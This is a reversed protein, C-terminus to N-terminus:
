PVARSRIRERDGRLHDKMRSRNASSGFSSGLRADVREGDVRAAHRVSQPATTVGIKWRVKSYQRSIAREEVRSVSVVRRLFGHM